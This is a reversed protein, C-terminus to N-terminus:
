VVGEVGDITVEMSNGEHKMLDLDEAPLVQATDKEVISWNDENKTAIVPTTTLNIAFIM